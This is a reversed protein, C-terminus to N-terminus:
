SKINTKFKNNILKKEQNTCFNNDLLAFKIKKEIVKEGCNPLSKHCWRGLNIKEEFVFINKFISEFSIIKKSLTKM